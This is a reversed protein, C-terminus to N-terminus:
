KKLIIYSYPQLDIQNTLTVMEGNMADTWTQNAVITPLSYSISNNRLNSVVFIKETGYEKTFACINANSYSALLGRRIAISNNRFAIIKKYEDEMSQNQNWNITQVSTFINLPYNTGVEQGNYIMPVGKMYAAVVFAAMSGASGGFLELPTNANTVDHNSIYRVVQQQSNLVGDYETNNFNDITQVSLNNSYISKLNYYFGFGFIYDFGAKYKSANGSEALLLLNHTKINRLTDIAQKWFDNPPGDAYDFRFGDCNATYIWYKMCNIMEKRMSDNSFNLQAVDNWEMSPSLINGAANQMYWDKHISIWENDWSTHNAVWDMIVAMGRSHAGDILNRLDTLNGFETNVAKYDKVCYPSNIANLVGVPYTPMLYIVNVGLAKIYDLRDIVGQFNRSSSFARMNVQYIVADRTDPIGTFPTGYQSLPLENIQLNIECTEAGFSITFSATGLDSPTGTLTYSLNGAGNTLKGEQLTATLGTVGTSAIPTGTIYNTGNGGTYPVDINGTYNNDVTAVASACDLTYIASDPPIIDSNDKKSCSLFLITFVFVSFYNRM